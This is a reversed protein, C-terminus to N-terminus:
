TIKYTVRNKALLMREPCNIMFVDITELGLRELSATIQEELFRPSICHLATDSLVAFDSSSLLLGPDQSKIM